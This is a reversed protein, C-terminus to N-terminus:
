SKAKREFSLTFPIGSTSRIGPDQVLFVARAPAKGTNAWSATQLITRRPPRAGMLTVKWEAPGYAAIFMEGKNEHELTATLTEGPAVNLAFAVYQNAPDAYSQISPTGDPVEIIKKVMLPQQAALTCLTLLAAPLLSIRRM